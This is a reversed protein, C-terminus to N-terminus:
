EMEPRLKCARRLTVQNQGQHQLVVSNDLPGWKDGEFSKGFDEPELAEGDVFYVDSLYGNIVEYSNSSDEQGGVVITTGDNAANTSTGITQPTGGNITVEWTGATDTVFVHNWTNNNLKASTTTTGSGNSNFYCTIGFDTDQRLM